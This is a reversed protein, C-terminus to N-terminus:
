KERKEELFLRESKTKEHKRPQKKKRKKKKALIVSEWKREEGGWGEFLGKSLAMM